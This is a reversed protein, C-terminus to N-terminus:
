QEGGVVVLATTSAIGGPGTCTLVLNLSFQLPEIKAAGLTSKPGEWGDSAVCKDANSSLWTVAVSGGLVGEAPLVSMSVEPPPYFSDFLPTSSAAGATSTATSSASVSMSTSTAILPRATPGIILPSTAEGPGQPLVNLLARTRPGVNGVPPLGNDTQFAIVATKTLIGFYGTVEGFLYERAILFAQLMRVEEGRSGVTLDRTYMKKPPEPPTTTATTTSTAASSATTLAAIRALLLDVTGKMGELQPDSKPTNSEISFLFGPGLVPQDIPPIVATSVPRVPPKPSAPQTTTATTTAPKAVVPAGELARFMEAILDDTSDALASVPLAVSAAILATSLAIKFKKM